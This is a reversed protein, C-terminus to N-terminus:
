SSSCTKLSLRILGSKRDYSNGTFLGLKGIKHVRPVLAWRGWGLPLHSGLLVEPIAASMRRHGIWREELLGFESGLRFSPECVCPVRPLCGQSDERCSPPCAWFHFYMRYKKQGTLRQYPLSKHGSFSTSNDGWWLIFIFILPGLETLNLLVFHLKFM